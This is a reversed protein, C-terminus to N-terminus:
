WASKFRLEGSLEVPTASSQTAGDANVPVFHGTFDAQGSTPLKSESLELAIVDLEGDISRLAGEHGPVGTVEVYPQGSAEDGLDQTGQEALMRHVVVATKFAEQGEIRSAELSIMLFGDGSNRFGTQVGTGAHLRQGAVDLLIGPGDMVKDAVAAAVRPAIIRDTGGDAAIASGDKNECAALAPLLLAALLTRQTNRHM